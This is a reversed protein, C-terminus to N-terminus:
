RMSQCFLCPSLDLVSLLCCKHSTITEWTLLLTQNMMM